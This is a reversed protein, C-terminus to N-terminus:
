QRDRLTGALDAAVLAPESELQDWTYRLVLYGAARLRLDRNRDRKMQARSSHNDGGDVEVVVRQAHWVADVLFGQVRVNIAPVPIGYTECMGILMRELNSRTRALAPQHTGIAARLTAAGPRGRSLHPALAWPDVRHHYDANALAYRVTALPESAALDLLTRGIPTIPFRRHRALELRRPHHVVVGDTSRARNPASVEIVRPEDPLLHWWWAATRHSLASGPGAHLLAALMLGEIPVSPHGYAFVGHHMPHLRGAARWRKVAGKSVGCDRLQATGIVGWQAGAVAAARLTAM